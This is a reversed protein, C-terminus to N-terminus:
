RYDGHQVQDVDRHFLIRVEHCHTCEEMRSLVVHLEEVPAMFGSANTQPKSAPMQLRARFSVIHQHWGYRRVDAIMVQIGHTFGQPQRRSAYLGFSHRTSTNPKSPLLRHRDRSSSRSAIRSRVRGAVNGKLYVSM